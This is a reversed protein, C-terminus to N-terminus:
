KLKIIKIKTCFIDVGSPSVSANIGGNNSDYLDPYFGISFNKTGTISFVVAGVSQNNTHDVISSRNRSAHADSGYSVVSSDSENYLRSFASNCYFATTFWDVFYTGASLTFENSAISVISDPDEEFNLTRKTWSDATYAGGSTGASKKDGIVAVSIPNGTGGAPFVSSSSIQNITASGDSALVLNNSGSSEHKINTVKLDSSM